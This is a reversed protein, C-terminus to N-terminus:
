VICQIWDYESLWFNWTTKVHGHSFGLLSKSFWTTAETLLTILSLM